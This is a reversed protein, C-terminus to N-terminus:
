AEEDIGFRINRIDEREREPWWISWVAGQKANVVTAGILEMFRQRDDEDEFRVNITPYNPRPEWDAMGVWEAATDQTQMESAPRTTFALAALQNEDFGTGMLAGNGEIELLGKLLETLARDNVKALNNIENDSTMVKLAKPDDSSIDLKIVPVRKKGMRKAAEVVGHGALITNDSAVVVNRYFGHQRISAQIQELQSDPHTQYNGPHPKLDAINMRVMQFPNAQWEVLDDLEDQTFGVIDPNWDALQLDFLEDILLETNWNSLESTRNDAIAFAKIKDETWDAPIEVVQIETWGLERAAEVTGNGTVVLNAKTVVVPKRQGFSDLSQKIAEISRKDHKRVNEPDLQLKDLEITKLEM